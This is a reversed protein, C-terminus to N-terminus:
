VVLCLFQTIKVCTSLETRTSSLKVYKLTTKDYEVLESLTTILLQM